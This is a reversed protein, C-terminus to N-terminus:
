VLVRDLMDAHLFEAYPAIEQELRVGAAEEVVLAPPLVPRSALWQYRRGPAPHSAFLSAQTRISLQRRPARLGAEREHVTRMLRRWTAAAEGKTVHHQVYGALNPLAALVDLMELTATIGGARAAMLDARLEISRDQAAIAANLTLHMSSLLLYFPGSVLKWVLVPLGASGVKLIVGRPPKFFRALRGFFTGAPQLLLSRTIDGYKLHGLEHGVLAVLQQPTLALLLGIGLTLVRTQAWGVRNVGANWSFDVIILDPRPADLDAALRDVMRHLIPANKREVLYGHKLLPKLRGLRPRLAVGVAILVLGGAIPWFWPDTVILAVGSAVLALVVLVVLASVAVMWYHVRGGIPPTESSTVLERDSRFGARRDAQWVRRWFWNDARNDPFDDLNWECTGCWPAADGLKVLPVRCDPCDDGMITPVATIM